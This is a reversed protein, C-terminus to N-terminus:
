VWSWRLLTVANTASHLAHLLRAHVDHLAASRRSRQIWNLDDRLRSLSSAATRAEATEAGRMATYQSIAQELARELHKLEKEVSRLYHTDGHPHRLRAAIQDCAHWMAELPHPTNSMTRDSQSM